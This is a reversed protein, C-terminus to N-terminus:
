MICSVFFYCSSSPTNSSGCLAAIRSIYLHIHIRRHFLPDRASVSHFSHATGESKIVNDFEPTKEMTYCKIVFQFPNKKESYSVTAKHHLPTTVIFPWPPFCSFARIIWRNCCFLRYFSASPSLTYPSEHIPNICVMSSAVSMPSRTPPPPSLCYCRRGLWGGQHVM